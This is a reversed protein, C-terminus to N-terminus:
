DFQMFLYVSLKRRDEDSMPYAPMPPQPVRLFTELSSLDYRSSLSVLPRIPGPGAGEVHCSACEFQNWLAQGEKFAFQRDEQPIRALPNSSRAKAVAPAAKKGSTPEGYVVRYISGTYDDSVFLEGDQGVAVDVPRGRVDDGIQFGTLFREARSGGKEDFRIAVVEYGQKERRNWSGHLAVFAANRYEEPFSEGDYFAIGLPATHAPLNHVPPITIAVKEPALAGLDPDPINPANAYPWGYFGGEEILNVECPPFDDGLLDRGNDTAFLEQTVPHWDFGVSNRLGTALIEGNRGDLDFRMMSARREDEEECVNCSSGISVYLKEDPGVRVTKTWHNGGNPLGTIIREPEGSIARSEPDFRVRSIADGEGIYLWGDHWDLGHPRDLGTLLLRIGDPSGDGNEDREILRITDARPSTVLLDGSETVLLMRANPIGVAWLELSFGPPLQIRDQIESKEMTDVEGGLLAHRVMLVDVVMGGPLEIAGEKTFLWALGGGLVLFLVLILSLIFKM